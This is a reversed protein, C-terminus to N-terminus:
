PPATASSSCSWRVIDVTVIDTRLQEAPVCSMDPLWDVPFCERFLVTKLEQRFAVLSTDTFLWPFGHLWDQLLFRLSHHHKATVIGRALNSLVSFLLCSCSVLASLLPRVLAVWRQSSETVSAVTTGRHDLMCYLTQLCLALLLSATMCCCVQVCLVTGNWWVASVSCCMQVCPVRGNWWAVSVSHCVQVCPVGGCVCEYLPLMTGFQLSWRRSNDSAYQCQGCLIRFLTYTVTCHRDTQRDTGAHAWLLLGVVACSSRHARYAPAILRNTCPRCQAAATPSSSCHWILTHVYTASCLGTFVHLRWKYLAFLLV